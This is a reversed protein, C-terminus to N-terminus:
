RDDDDIEKAAPRGHWLALATAFHGLGFVGGVAWGSPDAAPDTRLCLIVGLAVYALGVPGVAPPLFPAAAVVGLGFVAAWVGPLFPVFDPAGRAVAVTVAGGALLCPLFQVLVRRTRRRDFEDERLVYSRVGAATGLIGGVAAVAVWYLVFGVGRGAEPVLPQAAAAALGVCGVAAVAPVRFGRYVAARDLQAHIADLRDLAEDVRM